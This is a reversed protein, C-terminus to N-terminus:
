RGGRGGAPLEDHRVRREHEVAWQYAHVTADHAVNGGVGLVVMLQIGLFHNIGHPGIGKRHNEVRGTIGGAGDVRPFGDFGNDFFRGITADMHDTVLDVVVQDVVALIVGAHQGTARVQVVDHHDATERFGKGHGAHADAPQDAALAGDLFQAAVM